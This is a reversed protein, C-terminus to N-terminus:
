GALGIRALLNQLAPETRLPDLRRYVKVLPLSGDHEDYAKEPFALAVEREGLALHILALYYPPVYAAPEPAKLEALAAEAEDRASPAAATLAM